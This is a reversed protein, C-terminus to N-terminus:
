RGATALEAERRLRELVPVMARIQQQQRKSLPGLKDDATHRVLHRRARLRIASTFVRDLQRGLTPDLHGRRVMQRIVGRTDTAKIGHVTRFLNVPMQFVRLIDHKINVEGSRIAKDPDKPAPTALGRSWIPDAAGVPLGFPDRLSPLLREVV